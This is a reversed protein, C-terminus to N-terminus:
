TYDKAVLHAKLKDITGDRKRKVSYVWQCGIIPKETPLDILDLTGYLAIEKNRFGYSSDVKCAWCDWWLFLSGYYLGISSLIAMSIFIISLSM